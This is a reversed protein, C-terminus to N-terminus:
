IMMSKLPEQNKIQFSFLESLIPKIEHPIYDKNSMASLLNKAFSIGIDKM